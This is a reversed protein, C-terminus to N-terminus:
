VERNEYVTQGKIYKKYNGTTDFDKEAETLWYKAFDMDDFFGVYHNKKDRKFNATFKGRSGQVGRHISYKNARKHNPLEKKTEWNLLAKAYAKEAEEKYEYSGLAYSKSEIMIRSIWKGHLFNVGIGSIDNIDGTISHRINERTTCWELNEVRNDDRIGNKHNVFPKNEFNEIFAEAILRHSFVKKARKVRDVTVYLYGFPNLTQKMLIIPLRKEFGNSDITISETTKIRGFNSCEYLGSASPVPKWVENQLNEIEQNRIPNKARHKKSKCVKCYSDKGTKNNGTQFRDLDKVEKCTFCRKKGDKLLIVADTLRNICCSKCRVNLGDVKNAEKYFSSIEKEEWCANCVKKEM